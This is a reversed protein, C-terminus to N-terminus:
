SPGVLRAGLHRIEQLPEHFSCSGIATAFERRARAVQSADFRLARWQLVDPGPQFAGPDEEELIRLVEARSAGNWLATAALFVNLFGFQIAREGGPEGTLSVPGRVAHHLGATAKFPLREAACASLFSLVAAATPIEAARASGARLKAIGGADKVARALTPLDAELPLELVLGVAAPVAARAREVEGPTRALSEVSEVRVHELGQAAAFDDSVKACVAIDSGATVTLRWPAPGRLGFPLRALATGLEDLRASPVVFRNLIWGDPGRLSEAYERLAQEMPLGAPPYLGAYDILGEFFATTASRM